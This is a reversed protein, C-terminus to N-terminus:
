TFLDTLTNPENLKDCLKYRLKRSGVPYFVRIINFNDTITSSGYNNVIVVIVVM